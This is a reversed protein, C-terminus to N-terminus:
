SSEGRQRQISAIFRDFLYNSDHPGPAAEPHYQVSFVPLRNHRLGEVTRDNLNIHTVTVTDSSLTDEDVCFGHNQSSIEVKDTTHDFVPQNAGHHGFKLKRTTAGFVQGLIQHGMCIGFVPLKEVLSRVTEVVYPVAAPDGPGNSLFLGDPQFDMIDAKTASAPFVRLRAGRQALLRLINYKIGLDLVAIKYTGEQNWDYPASATVARVYDSGEMPPAAKAKAVLSDPSLDVTSLVCNMAGRNRVARTVARTDIGEIAIIGNETLYKGLSKEARYNSYHECYERVVFGAVRISASEIDDSNVGYNGILPYTMLVIQGHYSPDTLVEQYGSMATNFILEGRSEGGAGFSRGRFVQGDALALMANYTSTENMFDRHSYFFFPTFDILNVFFIDKDPLGAPASSRSLM